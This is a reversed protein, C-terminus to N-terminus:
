GKAAAGAEVDVREYPGPTPFSMRIFEGVGRRWTKLDTSIFPWSPSWTPIQPSVKVDVTQEGGLGALNGYLTRKHLVPVGAGIDLAELMTAKHVTLPLHLEYSLPAPHGLGRLLEQTQEMGELYKSWGYRTRYDAIVDDVPGRHLPPIVPHHRLAFFDDNWLTFPDSVDPHGCAARVNGTSNRYKTDTQDTPLHLVGLPGDTQVWPPLHGVIWVRGHPVNQALSRLSHRLEDNRDGPRVVYVADPLVPAATVAPAGGRDM